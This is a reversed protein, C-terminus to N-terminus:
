IETVLELIHDWKEANKKNRRGTGGVMAKCVFTAQRFSLQDNLLQEALSSYFESELSELHDVIFGVQEKRKAKKIDIRTQMEIRKQREVDERIQIREQRAEAEKSTLRHKLAFKDVGVKEACSTGITVREGSDTDIVIVCHKIGTGCHFCQGDGQAKTLFGAIKANKLNM